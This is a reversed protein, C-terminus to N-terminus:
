QKRKKKIASKKKKREREETGAVRSARKKRNRWQTWKSSRKNKAWSRAIMLNQGPSRQPKPRHQKPSFLLIQLRLWKSSGQLVGVRGQHIFLLLHRWFEKVWSSARWRQTSQFFFQRWPLPSPDLFLHRWHDERGNVSEENTGSWAAGTPLCVSRLTSIHAEKKKRRRKEKWISRRQQGGNAQDTGAKGLQTVLWGARTPKSEAVWPLSSPVLSFTILLHSPVQERRGSFFFPSFLFGVGDGENSRQLGQNCKFNLEGRAGRSSM